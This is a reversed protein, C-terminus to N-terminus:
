VQKDMQDSPSVEANNLQDYVIKELSLLPLEERIEGSEDEERVANMTMEIPAFLPKNLDELDIEAEGNLGTDISKDPLQKLLCVAPLSAFKISMDSESVVVLGENM